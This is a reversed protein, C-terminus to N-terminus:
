HKTRDVLRYKQGAEPTPPFPEDRVVTREKGTSGGRPNVIGWQGSTPCTEGPKYEDKKAM